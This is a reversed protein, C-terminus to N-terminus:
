VAAYLNKGIYVISVIRNASPNTINRTINRNNLSYEYVSSDTAIALLYNKNRRKHGRQNIASSTVNDSIIASVNDEQYLTATLDTNWYVIFAWQDV